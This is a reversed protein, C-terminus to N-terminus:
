QGDSANEHGGVYACVPDCSSSGTATDSSCAPTSWYSTRAYSTCSASSGPSSSRSHTSWWGLEKSLSLGWLM